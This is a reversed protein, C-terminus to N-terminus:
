EENVVTYFAKFYPCERTDKCVRLPGFVGRGKYECTRIFNGEDDKSWISHPCDQPTSPMEDVIIKMRYCGKKRSRQISNLYEIPDVTPMAEISKRTVCVVDTGNIFMGSTYHIADADILRM